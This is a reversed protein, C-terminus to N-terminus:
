DHLLVHFQNVVVGLSYSEVAVLVRKRIEFFQLWIVGRRKTERLPHVATPALVVHAVPLVANVQRAVIGLHLSDAVTLAFQRAKNSSQFM